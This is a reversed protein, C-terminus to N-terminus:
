TNQETMKPPNITAQRPYRERCGIQIQMLEPARM